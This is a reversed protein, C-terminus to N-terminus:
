DGEVTLYYDLTGNYEYEIGTIIGTKYIMENKANYIGTEFEITDGIEYAFIDNIHLIYSYKKKLNDTYWNAIEKAKEESTINRNDIVIEENKGNNIIFDYSSFKFPRIKATLEYTKDAYKSNPLYHIYILDFYLSGVNSTVGSEYITGDKNYFTFIYNLVDTALGGTNGLLELSKNPNLTAYGYINTNFKGSFAETEEDLDNSYIKININKLKDDKEIKPYEQQNELEIKAIPTTCKLRKFVIENEINEFVNAKFFIGLSAIYNDSRMTKEYLTTTKEAENKIEDDILIKESIKEYNNNKLLYELTFPFNYIDDKYLEIWNSKQLKSLAGLGFITLELTNEGKEFHDFYIDDVKLYYIIENILIGLFVTIINNENLSALISEEDFINYEEDEDVIKIEISKSELTENTLNAGKKASISIIKDDDYQFITGIYMNLIKAHSYKQSWKYIKVTVTSGTEINKLKIKTSNNNDFNYTTSNGDKGKIIVDFEIAFEARLDSFIINLDAISNKDNDCRKIYTVPTKFIGNPDSVSDSYWGEIEEANSIICETTNLSIGENEFIAYKYKENVINNIYVSDSILVRASNTVIRARAGDILEQPIKIM